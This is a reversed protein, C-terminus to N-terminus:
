KWWLGLCLYSSGRKLYLSTLVWITVQELWWSTLSSRTRNVELPQTRL